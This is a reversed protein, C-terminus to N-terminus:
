YHIKSGYNKISNLNPLPRVPNPLLATLKPMEQKPLADICCREIISSVSCGRKKALRRLRSETQLSPRFGLFSYAKARVAKVSAAQNNKGDIQAKMKWINLM